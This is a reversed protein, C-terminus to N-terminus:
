QMPKAGVFIELAAAQGPKSQYNPKGPVLKSAVGVARLADQLHRAYSDPQQKDYYIGVGEVPQEDFTVWEVKTMKSHSVSGKIESAYNTAEVNFFVTNVTVFAGNLDAMEDLQQIFLKSQEPSFHRPSFQKAIQRQTEEDASQRISTSLPPSNLEKHIEATLM